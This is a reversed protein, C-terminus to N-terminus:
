SLCISKQSFEVHSLLEEDIKLLSFTNTRVRKASPISYTNSVNKECVIDKYEKREVKKKYTGIPILM